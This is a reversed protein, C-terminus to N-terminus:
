GQLARYGDDVQRVFAPDRKSSDWYRPDAQMERLQALTLPAGPVTAGTDVPVSSGRTARIVKELVQVGAATSALAEVAPFEEATFFNRAWLGVARLRDDAKDGLLKKESEMDPMGQQLSEIYAKVGAQFQEQNLGANFAQERWFKFLANDKIDDSVVVNDPMEGLEYGDPTEPRNAAVAAEFEKNFQDRFNDLTGNQLANLESYKLLLGNTDIANDKWFEEPVNEPRGDQSNAPNPANNQPEGSM